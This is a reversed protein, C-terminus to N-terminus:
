RWGRQRAAREQAADFPEGAMTSDVLAALNPDMGAAMRYAGAQGEPAAFLGRVAWRNGDRCALGSARPQTFSRCLDGAQDRFTLGIRVDGEPASALETNLAQDLSASAYIRGGQVEVPSGARHPILTGVLVGVVLTAAIAAWQPLSRRLRLERARRAGGLDLVQAQPARVADLLRAPVSADAVSDFAGKLRVQMARHETALRSLETSAAVHREMEAADSASLEGDLWAFFKEDAETM